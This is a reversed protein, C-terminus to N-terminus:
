LKLLAALYSCRLCLCKGTPVSIRGPELILSDPLFSIKSGGPFPLGPPEREAVLVLRRSHDLPCPRGPRISRRCRITPRLFKLRRRRSHARNGRERYDGDKSRGTSVVTQQGVITVSEAYCPVNKSIEGPSFLFAVLLIYISHLYSPSFCPLVPFVM